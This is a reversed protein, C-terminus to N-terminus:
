VEGKAQADFNHQKLIWQLAIEMDSTGIYALLKGLKEEAEKLQSQLSTIKENKRQIYTKVRKVECDKCKAKTGDGLRGKNFSFKDRSLFKRCGSCTKGHPPHVTNGHIKTM